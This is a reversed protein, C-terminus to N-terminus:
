RGDGMQQEFEGVHTEFRQVTEDIAAVVQRPTPRPGSYPREIHYAWGESLDARRVQIGRMREEVLPVNNFVGSLGFLDRQDYVDRDLFPLRLTVQRITGDEIIVSSKHNDRQSTTENFSPVVFDVATRTNAQTVEIRQMGIPELLDAVQQATSGGTPARMRFEGSTAIGTMRDELTGFTDLFRQQLTDYFDVMEQPAIDYGEDRQYLRVHPRLEEAVWADGLDITESATEFDDLIGVESAADLVIDVWKGELDTITGEPTEGRDGLPGFRITVETIRGTDPDLTIASPYHPDQDNPYFEIMHQGLEPEFSASTVGARRIGDLITEAARGGPGQPIDDGPAELVTQDRPFAGAFSLERYLDGMRYEITELGTTGPPRHLFKLTEDAPYGVVAATYAIDYLNQNPQVTDTTILDDENLGDVKRAAAVLGGGGGPVEVGSMGSKFPLAPGTPGAVAPFWRGLMEFHNFTQTAVLTENREPFVMGVLSDVETENSGLIKDGPQIPTRGSYVTPPTWRDPVAPPQMRGPAELSTAPDVTPFAGAFRLEQYLDGLRFRDVTRSVDFDTEDIVDRVRDPVDPEHTWRVITDEPMGALAAGWAATYLDEEGESVRVVETSHDGHRHLQQTLGEAASPVELYTDGHVNSATFPMFYSPVADGFEAAEDALQDYMQDHHVYRPGLMVTDNFDYALANVSARPESRLQEAAAEVTLERDDITRVNRPPSWGSPVAPPKTIEDPEPASFQEIEDPIAPARDRYLPIFREYWEAVAQADLDPGNLEIHIIDEGQRQLTDDRFGAMDRFRITIDAEDGIASTTGPPDADQVIEEVRTKALFLDDGEALGLAGLRITGTVTGDRRVVFTSGFEGDQAITLRKEPSSVGEPSFDITPYTHTSVNSVHGGTAEIAETLADAGVTATDPAAFSSRASFLSKYLDVYGGLRDVVDEFTADTEELDYWDVHPWLDNGFGFLTPDESSLAFPGNAADFWKDRVEDSVDPDVPPFRFTANSVEGDRFTISTKSMSRFAEDTPMRISPDGPFDLIFDIIEAGNVGGVTNTSVEFVYPKRSLRRARALTQESVTFMREEDPVSEIDPRDAGDTDHGTPVNGDPAEMEIDRDLAPARFSADDPLVDPLAGMFRLERYCAGLRYQDTTNYDPDVSGTVRHGYRVVADGDIGFRRAAYVCEYLYQPSTINGGKLRRIDDTLGKKSLGQFLGGGGGPIEFYVVGDISSGIKFGLLEDPQPYESLYWDLLTGHSATGGAIVAHNPSPAYLGTLIEASRRRDNRGNIGVEEIPGGLSLVEPPSFDTAPAPPTTTDDPDPAALDPGRDFSETVMDVLEQPDM